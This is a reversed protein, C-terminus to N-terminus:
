KFCELRMDDDVVVRLGGFSFHEDDVERGDMEITL